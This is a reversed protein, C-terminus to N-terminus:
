AHVTNVPAGDAMGGLDDVTTDLIRYLAEQSYFAIHPTFVVDPRRLLVNARLVTRLQEETAQMDNRALLAQDETILEEGELVDLGAGALIGEDLARLLAESDVLTGRATNILMAGRKMLKLRDYNILHYTSPLSPAHLTVIDAQALTDELSAYTFDLVEAMLPSPRVDYAVVRMGFARAIRIVHLGISGVGIVGLTRGKLDFGMLGELRFDGAATRAYAKHVNRSLDLILAFTHEAVTNEGYRPVTSVVIDRAACAALDIHDFGTSRTAVGRLAPFRELAAADVRSHIFVCLHTVRESEAGATEATLPESHWFLTAGPLRAALKRELYEREQPTVDYCAITLDENGM